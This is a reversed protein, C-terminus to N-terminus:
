AKSGQIGIDVCVAEGGNGVWGHGDGEVAISDFNAAGVVAVQM